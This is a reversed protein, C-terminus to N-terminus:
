AEQMGENKGKRTSRLVQWLKIDEDCNVRGRHNGSEQIEECWKGMAKEWNQRERAPLCCM